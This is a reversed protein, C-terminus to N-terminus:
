LLHKGVYRRYGALVTTVMLLMLASSPEPVAAAAGAYNIGIQSQIGIGPMINGNADRAQFAVSDFTHALDLQSYITPEATSTVFLEMDLLAALDVQLVFTENIKAPVEFILDIDDLDITQELPLSDGQVPALFPETKEAIYPTLPQHDAYASMSVKYSMNTFFGNNLKSLNGLNIDGLDPIESFIETTSQEFYLKNGTARWHMYFTAPDGTQDAPGTLKVSDYYTTTTHSHATLYDWDGDPATEPDFSGESSATFAVSSSTKMDFTTSGETFSGLEYQGGNISGSTSDLVFSQFQQTVNTAPVRDMETITGSNRDITDYIQMGHDYEVQRGFNTVVQQALAPPAAFFNLTIALVVVRLARNHKSSHRFTQGFNLPHLGSERSKM